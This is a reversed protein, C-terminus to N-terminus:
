FLKQVQQQNGVDVMDQPTLSGEPKGLIRAVEARQAGMARTSKGYEGAAKNDTGYMDYPNSGHQLEVADYRAGTTPTERLTGTTELVPTDADNLGLLRDRKSALLSVKDQVKNELNIVQTNNNQQTTAALGVQPLEMTSINMDQISPM